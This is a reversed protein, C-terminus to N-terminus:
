PFLVNGDAPFLIFLQLTILIPFYILCKQASNYLVPNQQSHTWTHATHASCGKPTKAFVTDLKAPYSCQLSSRQSIISNEQM